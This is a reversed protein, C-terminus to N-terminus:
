GSALEVEVNFSTNGDEAQEDGYDYYESEEKVEDVEVVEEGLDEIM